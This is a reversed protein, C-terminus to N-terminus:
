RWSRCNGAVFKKGSTRTVQQLSPALASLEFAIATAIKRHRQTLIQYHHPHAPLSLIERNIIPFEGRTVRTIPNKVTAIIETNYWQLLKMLRIRRKRNHDTHNQVQIMNTNKSYKQFGPLSMIGRPWRRKRNKYSHRQMIQYWKQTRVKNSPKALKRRHPMVNRADGRRCMDEALHDDFNSDQIGQRQEKRDRTTGHM